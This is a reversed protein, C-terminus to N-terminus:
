KGNRLNQTWGWTKLPTRPALIYCPYVPKNSGMNIWEPYNSRM